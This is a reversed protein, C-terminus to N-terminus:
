SFYERDLVSDAPLVDPMQTTGRLGVVTRALGNLVREDTIRWNAIQNDFFAQGTISSAIVSWPAVAVDPRTGAYTRPALVARSFIVLDVQPTRVAMADPWVVATGVGDDLRVLWIRPVFLSEGEQAQLSTRRYNWQWITLLRARPLTFPQSQAPADAPFSGCAQRNMEDWSRLFRARNYPAVVPDGPYRAPGGFRAAFAELEPLSEEAFSSPRVVDMAFRGM